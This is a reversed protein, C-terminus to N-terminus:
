LRVSLSARGSRAGTRRRVTATELAPGCLQLPEAEGFLLAWGAPRQLGTKFVGQALERDAAIDDLVDVL